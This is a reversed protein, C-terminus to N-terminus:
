VFLLYDKPLTYLLLGKQVSIVVKPDLDYVLHDLGKILRIVICIFCGRIM